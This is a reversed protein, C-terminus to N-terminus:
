RYKTYTHHVLRVNVKGNLSLNWVAATAQLKVSNHISNLLQILPNIAGAKAIAIRNNDINLLIKNLIYVFYYNIHVNNMLM